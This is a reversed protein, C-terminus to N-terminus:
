RKLVVQWNEDEAAVTRWYFLYSSAACTQLMKAPLVYTAARLYDPTM